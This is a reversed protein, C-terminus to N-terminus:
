RAPVSNTQNLITFMRWCGYYQSRLITVNEELKLFFKLQGHSTLTSSHCLTYIYTKTGESFILMCNTWHSYWISDYPIMLGPLSQSLYHSTVQTAGLWQRFWCPCVIELDVVRAVKKDNQPEKRKGHKIRFRKSMHADHELKSCHNGNRQKPSCRSVKGLMLLDTILPTPIVTKNIKEGRGM